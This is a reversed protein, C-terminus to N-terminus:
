GRPLEPVTVFTLLPQWHRRMAPPQLYDDVALDDDDDDDTDGGTSGGADSGGEVAAADGSGSGHQRRRQEGAGRLLSEDLQGALFASLHAAAAARGAAGAADSCYLTCWLLAQPLDTRVAVAVRQCSRAPRSPASPSPPLWPIGGRGMWARCAARGLTGCLACRVLCRVCQAEIGGGVVEMTPPDLAIQAPLALHCPFHRLAGPAPAQPMAARQELDLARGSALRAAEWGGGARAARGPARVQGALLALGRHRAAQSYPGICSPAWESVSQVHLVRREGLAHRRTSSAMPPSPDPHRRSSRVSKSPHPAPRSRGCAVAAPRVGPLAAAARAWRAFLVDVVLALGAGAGLQVTARAPPNIAPLVAAYAANAAGFQAMSPVYLHVFLSARWDLGLAPLTASIRGLAAALAAATGAASRLDPSGPGPDAVSATLSCYQGGDATSLQVDLAAQLAAQAADPPAPAAPALAAYSDPVEIVAAAADAAADPAAAAAAEAGSGGGAAEAAVGAAAGAPGKAVVHFATPHLLAIPALSDESVAVARWSDLVIRGRAFLPCDLTLSEYEGGEGCVNSGYRRRLAHLQRCAPPSPPFCARPTPSSAANVARGAGLRGAGRGCVGARRGQGARGVWGGVQAPLDALRAGLHRAPTLGAAAIKVLVADIGGDVMRRLLAAQLCSLLARPPQLVATGLRAAAACALRLLARRLRTRLRCGSAGWAAPRGSSGCGCLM